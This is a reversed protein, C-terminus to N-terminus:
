IPGFPRTKFNKVLFRDWLDVNQQPLVYFISYIYFAQEFSKAFGANLPIAPKPATEAIQM